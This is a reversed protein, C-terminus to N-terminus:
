VITWCIESIWPPRVVWYRRRRRCRMNSIVFSIWKSRTQIILQGAGRVRTWQRRRIGLSEGITSVDPMLQAHGIIALLAAVADIHEWLISIGHRYRQAKRRLQWIVNDLYTLELQWTSMRAVASLWHRPAIEDMVTTTLQRVAVYIACSQFPCQNAPLYIACPIQTTISSAYWQRRIKRTTMWWSPGRRRGFDRHHRWGCNSTTQMSNQDSTFYVNPRIRTSSFRWWIGYECGNKDSDLNKRAVAAHESPTTVFISWLLERLWEDDMDATDSKARWIFSLREKVGWICWVCMGGRRGWKIERWWSHDFIKANKAGLESCHPTRATLLSPIAGSFMELAHTICWKGGVM